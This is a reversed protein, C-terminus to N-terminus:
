RLSKSRRGKYENEELFSVDSVGERKREDDTLPTV